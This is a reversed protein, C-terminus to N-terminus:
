SYSLSSWNLKMKDTSQRLRELETMEQRRLKDQEFQLTLLEKQQEFILGATCPAATWSGPNPGPQAECVGKENGQLVGQDFLSSLVMNQLEDKHLKEAVTTGFHDAICFLDDKKGAEIFVVSPADFFGSFFGYNCILWM